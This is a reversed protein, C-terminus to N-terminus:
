KKNVISLAKLLNLAENLQYDSKSVVDPPGDAPKASEDSKPAPAAAPADEKPPEKKEQPNSLRKGLDAERM